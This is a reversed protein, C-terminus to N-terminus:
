QDLSETHHKVDRVTSLQDCNLGNQKLQFFNPSTLGSLKGVIKPIESNTGNCTASSTDDNSSRRSGDVPTTANNNNNSSAGSGGGGGGGGSSNDNITAKNHNNLSNNNNNIKNSNSTSVLSENTPANCLNSNNQVNQALQLWQKKNERVGDVLGHLKESLM